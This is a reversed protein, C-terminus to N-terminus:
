RNIGYTDEVYGISPDSASRCEDVLSEIANVIVWTYAWSPCTYSWVSGDCNKLTYRIEKTEGFELM